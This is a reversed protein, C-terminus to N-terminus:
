SDKGKGKGKGENECANKHDVHSPLPQRRGKLPCFPTEEADPCTSAQLLHQKGPFPSLNGGLYHTPGDCLPALTESCAAQKADRGM